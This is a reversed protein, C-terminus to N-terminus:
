ERTLRSQVVRCFCASFRMTTRVPPLPAKSATGVPGGYGSTMHLGFALGVGGMPRARWATTAEVIGPHRWAGLMHGDFKASGLGGSSAARLGLCQEGYGRLPSLPGDEGYDTM